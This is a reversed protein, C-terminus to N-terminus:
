IQEWSEVHGAWTFGGTPSEPKGVLFQESEEDYFGQYENGNQDVWKVLEQDTPLSSRDLKVVNKM